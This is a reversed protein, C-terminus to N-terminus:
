HIVKIFESFESKTGHTDITAIAIANLGNYASLSHFERPAILVTRSNVIESGNLKLQKIEYGSIEDPSLETGDARKTPRNWTLNIVGSVTVTIKLTQSIEAVCACQEAANIASQIAKHITSHQSIQEQDATVYFYSSAEQVIDVPM